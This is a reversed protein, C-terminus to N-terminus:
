TGRARIFQVHNAREIESDILPLIVDRHRRTSESTCDSSQDDDPFTPSSSEGGVGKEDHERSVSAAAQSVSALSTAVAQTPTADVEPIGDEPQAIPLSSTDRFM